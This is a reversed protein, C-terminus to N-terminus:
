GVYEALRPAFYARTAALGERLGTLASWGLLERAKAGSLVQHGVEIARREAPWPVSRVPVGGWQASIREALQLVSLHEASAASIVEGVVRDSRAALLLADVADDVYLVNRLQDGSGYVTLEQGKLARGIFYNLFGFDPSSINARPGYVNALRVTTVPIGYAQGHVLVVKEAATKSASYMDLPFEPHTETIPEVLMRGVQTSTGVHVFRIPRGAHRVAELLVIAGDCNVSMVHHPDKMSQAHSTFAACNFVVDSEAVLPGVAGADRIDVPMSRVRDAIGELNGRNGGCRPDLTDVVVVSAGQAVCRQALNSGIFGLGGTVLVRAGALDAAIM